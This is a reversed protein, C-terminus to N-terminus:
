LQVIGRKYLDQCMFIFYTAKRQAAARVRPHTPASDPRGRACGATPLPGGPPMSRREPAASCPEWVPQLIRSLQAHPEAGSGALGPANTGWRPAPSQGRQGGVRRQWLPERAGRERRRRMLMVARGTETILTSVRATFGPNLHFTFGASRGARDRESSPIGIAASPISALGSAARQPRNPTLLTGAPSGGRPVFARLTRADTRLTASPRGRCLLLLCLPSLGGLADVADAWPKLPAWARRLPSKGNGKYNKM